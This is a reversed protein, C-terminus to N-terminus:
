LTTYSQPTTSSRYLWEKVFISGLALWAANINPGLDAHSHSHSHSHSHGHSHHALYEAANEIFFEAYLVELANFGKDGIDAGPGVFLGYVLRM